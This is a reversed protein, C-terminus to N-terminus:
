RIVAGRPLSAANRSLALQELPLYRAAQDIQRMIEDSSKSSVMKTTILGLM